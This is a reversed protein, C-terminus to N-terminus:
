KRNRRARAIGALGAGLLLLSAPEPVETDPLQLTAMHTSGTADVGTATYLVSGDAGLFSINFIDRFSCCDSRGFITLSDLETVSALSIKLFDTALGTSHYMNPFSLDSFLGDIAKSATSEGNWSNPASASGGNSALAVNVGTGSQFAQLEAVQIYETSGATKTVIIDKVGILGASASSSFTCAAIALAALTPKFNIM